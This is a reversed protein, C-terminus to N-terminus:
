VTSADLQGGRETNAHRQTHAGWRLMGLAQTLCNLFKMRFRARAQHSQSMDRIRPIRSPYPTHGSRLSGSHTSTTKLNTSRSRAVQLFVM